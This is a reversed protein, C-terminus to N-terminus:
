NCEESDERAVILFRLTHYQVNSAEKQSLNYKRSLLCHYAQLSSIFAFLDQKQIGMERAISRYYLFVM